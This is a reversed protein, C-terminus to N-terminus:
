SKKEDEDLSERVFDLAIDSLDSSMCKDAICDQWSNKKKGEVKVIFPEINRLIRVVMMSGSLGAENWKAKDQFEFLELVDPLRYTIKTGEICEKIREM